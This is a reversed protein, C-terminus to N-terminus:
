GDNSGDNSDMADDEDERSAVAAVVAVIAVPARTPGLLLFRVGYTCYESGGITDDLMMEPVVVSFIPATTVPGM